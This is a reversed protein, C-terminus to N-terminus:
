ILQLLYKGLSDSIQSPDFKLMKLMMTNHNKRILLSKSCALVLRLSMRALQLNTYYITVQLEPKLHCYIILLVKKQNNEEKLVVDYPLSISNSKEYVEPPPVFYRPIFVNRKFFREKEENKIGTENEIKKENKKEDNNDDSDSENKIENQKQKKIINQLIM